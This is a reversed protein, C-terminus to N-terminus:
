LSNRYKVCSQWFVFDGHACMCVLTSRGLFHFYLLFALLFIDGSWCVQSHSSAPASDCLLGLASGGSCGQWSEMQRHCRMPATNGSISGGIKGNWTSGSQSCVRWKARQVMQLKKQTHKIIRSWGNLRPLAQIAEGRRKIFTTVLREACPMSYLFRWPCPQSPCSRM